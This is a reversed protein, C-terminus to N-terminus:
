VPFTVYLNDPKENKEFLGSIQIYKHFRGIKFTNGSTPYM